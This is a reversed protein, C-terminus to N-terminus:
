HCHPPHPWPARDGHEKRNDAFVGRFLAHADVKRVIRSRRDAISRVPGYSGLNRPEPRVSARSRPGDAANDCDARVFTWRRSRRRAAPGLQRVDTRPRASAGSRLRSVDAGAHGALGDLGSFVQLTAIIPRQADSGMLNVRMSETPAGECIEAFLM